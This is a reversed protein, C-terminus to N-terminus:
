AKRSFIRDLSLPGAGRMVLIMLVTIWLLRQDMIVGDPMRDFWAGYETADHGFIDTLSQIIIFGIMGIAALRTLLGVLILVPLIFEAWTGLLAVLWHYLSMADDDYGVADYVKPFIQGYARTPDLFGFFGEGIKLRASNLFYVMLTAVFTFRALTPLLWPGFASEIKAFVANHLFILKTM